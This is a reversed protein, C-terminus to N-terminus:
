GNAVENSTPVGLWALVTSLYVWRGRIPQPVFPMPNEKRAMWAYLTRIAPRSPLVKALEDQLQELTLLKETTMPDELTFDAPGGAHTRRGM